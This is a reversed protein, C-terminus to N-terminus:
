KRIEIQQLPSMSSAIQNVNRNQMGDVSNEGKVTGKPSSHIVIPLDTLLSIPAFLM